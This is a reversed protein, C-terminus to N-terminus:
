GAVLTERPRGMGPQAALLNTPTIGPHSLNSSSAGALPMSRDHLELAFLGFAIKSSSYAKM